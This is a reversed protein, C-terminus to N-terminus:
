INGIGAQIAEATVTGTGSAVTIRWARIPSDFVFDAAGAAGAVATPRVIPAPPAAAFWGGVSTVDSMTYELAFGVTGTVSMEIRLSFPDMNHAPVKWVSSGVGTQTLTIPAVM